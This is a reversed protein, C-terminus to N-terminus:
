GRHVRAVWQDPAKIEARTPLSEPSSWVQNFGDMGVRDVVERVFRSGEAYQRMKVDIGLLRRVLQDLPGGGARRRAFRARITQVTPVVEPGVGDMVYDAHGELLSMVATLREVVERQQPSTVLDVVSLDRGDRAAGVLTEGADRLRRLLAAPDLDTASVFDDVQADLHDSLWPVATFQVRHTVEHLCVWLRFDRSDVGLEDEAAVINPAVLLLRGGTGFLEYQGLVKGALVALVGGVQLGAFRRGVAALPGTPAGRREKLQDVLPDLLVRFGDANVRIWSKRDVVAAPEVPQSDGLRTFGTVHGSAEVALERLESVAHFARERPVEPGPRVLRQATSVALDWDIMETSGM